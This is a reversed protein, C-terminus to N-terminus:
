SGLSATPLGSPLMGGEAKVYTETGVSGRWTVKMGTSNVSDVVGSARSESGDTCTLRITWTSGQEGATGSCVTGGTAFLGAREGTIVLAVAKGGSTAVWSGELKGPEATPAASGPGSDTTSVSPGPSSAGEGTSGDDGADCGTLALAAALGAAALALRAPRCTAPTATM